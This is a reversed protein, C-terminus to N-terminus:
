WSRFRISLFIGKLSPAGLGSHGVGAVVLLLSLHSSKRAFVAKERSDRRPGKGTPLKIKEWEGLGGRHASKEGDCIWEGGARDKGAGPSITGM